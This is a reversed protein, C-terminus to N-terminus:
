ADHKKIKRLNLLAADSETESPHVALEFDWTARAADVETQWTKGKLLWAEGNEALITSIVPLLTGLPAVARASVYNYDTESLTEFRIPRVSLKRLGLERRATDLFAAKRGDSEILEVQLTTKQTLISIVIGPFGGGSGLDVWKGTVPKAARVVQASDQIHRHGLNGVSNQAVLNIAPNWKQVLQQFDALAKAEDFCTM